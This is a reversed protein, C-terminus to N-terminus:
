TARWEALDMDAIEAIHRRYFDVIWSYLDPNQEKIPTLVSDEIWNWYEEKVDRPANLPPTLVMLIHAGRGTKVFNNGNEGGLSQAWGRVDVQNIIWDSRIRVGSLDANARWLDKLVRIFVKLSMDLWLAEKPLQLWTSM